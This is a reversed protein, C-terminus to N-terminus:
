PLVRIALACTDDDTSGYHLRARLRKLCGDDPETSEDALVDMVNGILEASSRGRREVLGDTYFLVLDDGHLRETVVRFEADLRAGLLMGDPLPLTRAQGARAILPAFHGARAWRLDRTRPDYAAIIATATTNLQLCLGNMHRLLTGPDGIGISAWAILAYRLHAMGTAARLGHGVVDGLALLVRGDALTQTHYWDGGVQIASEAPLYSVMAELDGLAFPEAPLPQIM